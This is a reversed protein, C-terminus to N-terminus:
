APKFFLETALGLAAPDFKTLELSAAQEFKAAAIEGRPLLGSKDEKDYKSVIYRAIARSEYLELGNDTDKIFPIQGFPQVKLVSEAKHEGKTVDVTVLKYPVNLEKIVILSRRLSISLPIGYLQISM